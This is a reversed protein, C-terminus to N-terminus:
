IILGHHVSDLSRLKDSEKGRHIDFHWWVEVVEESSYLIYCGNFGRFLQCRVSFWGHCVVDETLLWLGLRQIVSNRCQAVLVHSRGSLDACDADHEGHLNTSDTDEKEAVEAM